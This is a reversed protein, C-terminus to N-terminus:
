PCQCQCQCSSMQGPPTNAPCQCTCACMKTAPGAGTSTVGTSAAADTAAPLKTKQALYLMLSDYEVDPVNHRGSANAKLVPGPPAHGSEFVAPGAGQKGGPHCANCKATWYKEGRASDAPGSKGRGKGGTGCATISVVVGVVVLVICVHFLHRM